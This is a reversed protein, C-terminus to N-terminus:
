KTKLYEKASKILNLESMKPSNMIPYTSYVLTIFDSWNLKSCINIVFDITEKESSSLNLENPHTNEKLKIIEKDEGYSNQSSFIEFYESKKIDDIITKVFPGYHNYYWKTESIQQQTLLVNKWDALYIMKVLRAKSLELPFPYNQYIYTVISELKTM